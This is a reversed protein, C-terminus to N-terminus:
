GNNHPKLTRLITLAVSWTPDNASLARLIQTKFGKKTGTAAFWDLTEDRMDRRKLRFAQTLIFHLRDSYQRALIDDALNNQLQIYRLLKISSIYFRYTKELNGRSMVSPKGVSYSLTVDPIYAVKGDRSLSSTIQLDECLFQRDRFLHTDAHYCKMLADRRFMSTCLHILPGHTDNLIPIFLEGKRSVPKLYERHYKESDSPHVTGTSEDYYQWATHVITIESDSDLIDAEKQLKLPDIWFDDGGCDAIYEGRAELICDYYNDLLGKNPNNAFLRIVDPYREAYDRCVALTGDTSCDEGVIIEFPFDCKQALISDLTRGILNEQNYTLVIVSVKPKRDTM